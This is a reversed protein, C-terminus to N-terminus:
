IWAVNTVPLTLWSSQFNLLRLELGENL